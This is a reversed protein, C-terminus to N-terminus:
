ADSRCLIAYHSTVHRVSPEKTLGTFGWEEVDGPSDMGAANAHRIWPESIMNVTLERTALINTITDKYGRTKHECTISLM